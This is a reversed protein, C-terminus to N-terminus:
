GAALLAGIAAEFAIGGLNKASSSGDVFASVLRGLAAGFWAIGVITFTAPTQAVLAWAGLALFFGGYTARIESVGVLGVPEISAFAAAASPRVLGM